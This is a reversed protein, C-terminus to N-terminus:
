IWPDDERKNRTSRVEKEETYFSNQDFESKQSIDEDEELWDELKSTATNKIDDFREIIKKGKKFFQYKLSSKILPLDELSLSSCFVLGPQQDTINELNM